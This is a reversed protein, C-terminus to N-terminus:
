RRRISIIITRTVTGLNNAKRRTKGGRHHGVDGASHIVLLWPLDATLTEIRRAPFPCWYADLNSTRGHYRYSPLM